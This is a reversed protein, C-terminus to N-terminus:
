RYAMKESSYLQKHFILKTRIDCTEGSIHAWIERM